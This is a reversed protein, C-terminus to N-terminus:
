EAVRKLVILQQKVGLVTIFEKSDIIKYFGYPLPAANGYFEGNVKEVAIQMYERTNKNNIYIIYNDVISNVYFTDSSSPELLYGKMSKLTSYGQNLEDIHVTIGTYFGSYGLRKVREEKANYLAKWQEQRKIDEARQVLKKKAIDQMRKNKLKIFGSMLITDCKLIEKEKWLATKKDLSIAEDRFKIYYNYSSEISKYDKKKRNLDILGNKCRWLADSIKERANKNPRKEQENELKKRINAIKNKCESVHQSFPKGWVLVTSQEADPLTKKLETLDRELYKGIHPLDEIARNLYYDSMPFKLVPLSDRCNAAIQGMLEREHNSPEQSCALFPMVILLLLLIYSNRM